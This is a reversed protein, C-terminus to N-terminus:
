LLDEDLLRSKLKNFGINSHYGIGSDDAISKLDDLTYDKQVDQKKETINREKTNGFDSKDKLKVAKKSDDNIIIAPMKKLDKVTLVDVERRAKKWEKMDKLEEVNNNYNFLYEQYARLRSERLSYQKYLRIGRLSKIVALDQLEEDTMERIDKGELTFKHDIVEMEDDVYCTVLNNYNVGKQKLWIHVYRNYCVSQATEEDCFPIIGELEYSEIEKNAKKIDGFITVKLAKM